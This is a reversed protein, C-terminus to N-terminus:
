NSSSDDNLSEQSNEWESDEETEIEVFKLTAKKPSTQKLIPKSGSALVTGVGATSLSSSKGGQSDPRSGTGVAAKKPNKEGSVSGSRGRKGGASKTGGSM